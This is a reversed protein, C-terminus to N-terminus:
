NSSGITLPKGLFISKKSKFLSGKGMLKELEGAGTLGHWLSFLRFTETCKTM